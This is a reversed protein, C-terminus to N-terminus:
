LEDLVKPPDMPKSKIGPVDQYEQFRKEHREFAQRNLDSMKELEPLGSVQKDPRLINARVFVYLKSETQTNDINRFLMGIIPIDGLLPVKSGGKNQSLRILGGLIITKQDPVTVITTVNSSAQDPPADSGGTSTELFDERTMAVELRLLDGESIHPTIDLQITADYPKFTSSEQAPGTGSVVVTSESIYRTDKTSITGKENDNVLIKPKALVRGYGKQQVATILAQIHRDSYFAQGAGSDVVAEFRHKRPTGSSNSDSLLPPFFENKGVIGGINTVLNLDYNFDDNNRIEVLTVDILVQPRRRDLSTILKKIWEQNKKSAYVIISFTNEDPVIVIEEETKKVVSEIKGEKDKVTEQILKTLVEALDKPDQNELYYIEYPVARALTETDVYSIIAAIQEHQEPTANVLLSNTSEIIVVIPQETVSLGTAGPQGATAPPPAGEEAPRPRTIRSQQATRYSSSTQIEGGIVGLEILKSKVEDAGVHQIDYIRISRLDQKAVDLSDILEEVTNLQSEFGIMLIRNTREDADLYVMPRGGDGAPQPQPQPRARGRTAPTPVVATPVGITISIDGLQEVLSKVKPALTAAMTYKLVRFRFQRPPGPKDIISLIEEIRSMRYTYGTVILKGTEPITTINVSLKMGDLLAKANETNIYQLDFFRTVVVDGYQVRGNGPTLLAPDIEMAETQPVITVLNGKRTMAFGRFKLVSELLPYLEKVKIPGRLKLTVTGNVKTPDYMYDLHLYDGVLTLLQVIELSEPLNLDLTEDSIASNPEPEYSMRESGVASKQAAADIQNIETVQAAVADIPKEAKVAPLNPQGQRLAKEAARKEALVKKATSIKEALIKGAEAKEAKAKEADAKEAEDLSRVLKAFFDDESNNEEKTVAEKKNVQPKQKQVPSKEPEVLASFEDTTKSRNPEASKAPQEPSKQFQRIAGAIKEFQAVQAIVIVKDNHVDIIAKLPASFAPPDFLTGVAINGLAKELQKSTPVPNLESAPCIVGYMFESNVDILNLISTAKVLDAQSATVLITNPNAPLLSVTGIGTNELFERGQLGSINKLPFVRYRPASATQEEGFLLGSFVCLILTFILFIGVPRRNFQKKVLMFGSWRTSFQM